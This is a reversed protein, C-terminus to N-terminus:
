YIFCINIVFIVNSKINYYKSFVEIFHLLICAGNHNRLIITKGDRSIDGGTIFTPWSKHLKAVQNNMFNDDTGSSLPISGVRKLLVTVTM